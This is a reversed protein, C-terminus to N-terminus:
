LDTLTSLWLQLHNQFRKRDSVRLPGIAALMDFFFAEESTPGAQAPPATTTPATVDHDPLAPVPLIEDVLGVQLAEEPTLWWDGSAFWKEVLAPSCRKEYLSRIPALIRELNDAQERLESPCGHCFLIPSHVMIEASPLALIRRCGMAVTVGSSCASGTITCVSDREQLLEAVKLACQSDGGMCDISLSVTKVDGLERAFDEFGVGWAGIESHIFVHAEDRHHHIAFWSM